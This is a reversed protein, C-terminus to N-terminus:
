GQEHSTRIHKFDDSYDYLADYLPIVAGGPYGFITDIGEKKLCELIVKAGNM